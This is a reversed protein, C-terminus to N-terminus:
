KTSNGFCIPLLGSAIIDLSGTHGAKKASFIKKVSFGGRPKEPRGANCGYVGTSEM